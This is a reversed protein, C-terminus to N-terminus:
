SGARCLNVRKEADSYLLTLTINDVDANHVFTTVSQQAAACWSSRLCRCLVSCGLKHASVVQLAHFAASGVRLAAAFSTGTVRAYLMCIHQSPQRLLHWQYPQQSDGRFGVSGKVLYCPFAHTDVQMFWM